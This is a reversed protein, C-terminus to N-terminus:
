QSGHRRRQRGCRDLQPRALRGGEESARRLRRVLAGEPGLPRSDRRPEGVRESQPVRGFRSEDGSQDQHARERVDREHKAPVRPWGEVHTVEPTQSQGM